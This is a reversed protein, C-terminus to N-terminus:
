RLNDESVVRLSPRGDRFTVTIGRRELALEADPPWPPGLGPLDIGDGFYTNVPGELAFPIHRTFFFITLYSQLWQNTPHLLVKTGRPIAELASLDWPLDRKLDATLVAPYPPAYHIGHRRHAAAIRTVGTIIQFALLGAVLIRPWRWRGVVEIGAPLCLLLMFVPSAFAVVKGAAWYNKAMALKAAPVMMLAAGLSWFVLNARTRDGDAPKAVLARVLMVLAGTITALIALRMALALVFGAGSRPTAFYLGFLGAVFDAFRAFGHSVHGDRGNFFIQFFQWWPVPKATSWKIQELVFHFQPPYLAIAIVAAYGLFPVIPILELRRRMMVRAVLTIAVIPGLAAAYILFGEPYVFMAGAIAAGLVGAIRGAAGGRDEPTAISSVTLGFILLLLPGAATQSWADIDLVYQGWFGLPFALPAVLWVVRSLRPLLNRALFTGVQAVQVFSAVLFAYHLHYAQGPAIRSFVAYLQHVSPRLTLQSSAMSFLPNRMTQYDTIHAIASYRKRGYVVAAELYSFQDWTNGQFVAFDDGGVWRPALLVVTAILNVALVTWAIRREASELTRWARVISPGRWAYFAIAVAVSIWFFIPISVGARYAVPVAVALVATGLTPAILLRWAFRDPLLLAIPLGIGGYVVMMTAVLAFDLM